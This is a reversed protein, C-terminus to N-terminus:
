VVRLVCRNRTENEMFLSWQLYILNWILLLYGHTVEDRDRVSLVAVQPVLWSDGGSVPVLLIQIEGDGEGRRPGLGPM